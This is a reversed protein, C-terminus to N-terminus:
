PNVACICCAGSRATVGVAERVSSATCSGSEAMISCPSGNQATNRSVTRILCGCSPPTTGIVQSCAAVTKTPPGPPGPPGTAGTAGTAGPFGQLGRPGPDGKPGPLGQPGPIPEGAPGLKVGRSYVNGQPDVTFVSTGSSDRGNILYQSGYVPVSASRLTLLTANDVQHAYFGLGIRGDKQVWLKPGDGASVNLIPNNPSTSSDGEAQILVGWAGWTNLDYGLFRATYTNPTLNWVDLKQVPSNTGVGLKGSVVVPNGPITNTQAMLGASVILSTAFVRDAITM